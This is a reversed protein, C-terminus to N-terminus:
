NIIRYCYIHKITVTCQFMYPTKRLYGRTQSQSRISMGCIRVDVRCCRCCCSILLRTPRSMARRISLWETHADKVVVGRRVRVRMEHIASLTVALPNRQQLGVRKENRRLCLRQTWLGGIAGREWIRYTRSPKNTKCHMLSTQYVSKARIQQFRTSRIDM